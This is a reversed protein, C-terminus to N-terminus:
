KQGARSGGTGGTEGRQWGRGEIDRERKGSERESMVTTERSKEEKQRFSRVGSSGDGCQWGNESVM